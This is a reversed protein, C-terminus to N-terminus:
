CRSYLAYAVDDLLAEDRIGRADTEYLRRIRHGPVRPEWRLDTNQSAMPSERITSRPRLPPKRGHRRPFNVTALVRNVIPSPSRSRVGRGGERRPFPSDHEM